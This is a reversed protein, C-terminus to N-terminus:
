SVKFRSFKHIESPGSATFSELCHTFIVTLPSLMASDLSVNKTSNNATEPGTVMPDVLLVETVMSSSSPINLSYMTYSAVVAFSKKLKM